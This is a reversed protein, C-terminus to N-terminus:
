GQLVESQVLGKWFAKAQLRNDIDNWWRSVKSPHPAIACHHGITPFWLFFPMSPVGFARAVRTGLLIIRERSQECVVIRAARPAALELPFADGKGEKGPWRDLVNICEFHEHFESINLDCLRALDNAALVLPIDCRSEHMFRSPAEGIVLTRM